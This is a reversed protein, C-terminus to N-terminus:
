KKKIRKNVMDDVIEGICVKKLQSEQMLWNHTSEFVRTQLRVREGTNWKPPRGLRSRHGKRFLELIKKRSPLNPKIPNLKKM